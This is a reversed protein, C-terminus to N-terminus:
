GKRRALVEAKAIRIWQTLPIRAPCIYSCCGCEICDAAHLKEARDYLGHEAAQAIFTPVLNIPCTRVCAACRICSGNEYFAADESTLAVIGSTGKIVPLDTTPQALGMMPGGTIVKCTEEKLGGCYDILESVLTGLRVLLNAPRRVGEGTVTVVREILPKGKKLAETIAVASGVNHNVVGVDLPLGGSPVVRRTTVQILMKEAGQPYKTKLAVVSMDSKGEVAQRMVRLADPKNDEIGIIGRGAGLAKMILELGFVIEDPKELMLRHDATLYPECEAGNIIVTDIAKGEPPSLKVHAPFAAGGLGVIGASRILARIEEPSLDDVKEVPELESCWEDRGDSEIIIATVKRGLPHNCPEIATVTGSISAHVPASVFAESDGIKQGTKVPDGVKVLPECPAGTHQHLPIVVKQPISAATIALSATLEKRYEPHVGGRFNAAGM